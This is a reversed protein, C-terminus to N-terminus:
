GAAARNRQIDALKSRATVEALGLASRSTPDFGLLGALRMVEARAERVEKPPTGPSSRLVAYDETAERFLAVMPADSEALWYGADLVREM